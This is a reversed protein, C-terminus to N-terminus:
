KPQTRFLLDLAEWYKGQKRAAELIQIAFKSNKHFPVHRVVLKIQGEYDSLLKKVQPYIAACSECEPDLFEVLYVTAEESGLQPSYERVFLSANETALFGLRKSEYKKYFYTGALFFGILLFASVVIWINKNKM